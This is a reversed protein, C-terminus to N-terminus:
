ACVCKKRRIVALRSQRMKEKTEASVIHGKSAAGIKMKHEDTM